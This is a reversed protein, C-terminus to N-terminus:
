GTEIESKRELRLPRLPERIGMEVRYAEIKDLVEVFLFTERLRAIEDGPRHPLVFRSFIYLLQQVNELEQNRQANCRGCAAVIWERAMLDRHQPTWRDVLLEQIAKPILHDAVLGFLNPDVQLRALEQASEFLAPKAAIASASATIGLADIQKGRFIAAEASGEHYVCCWNYKAFLQHDRPSWAKGRRKSASRAKEWGVAAGYDAITLSFPTKCQPCWTPLRRQKGRVMPQTVVEDEYPCRPCPRKLKITVPDGNPEWDSPQDM